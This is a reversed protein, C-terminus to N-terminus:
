WQPHRCRENDIKRGIDTMLDRYKAKRETEREAVLPDWCVAVDM